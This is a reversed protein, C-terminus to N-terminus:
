PTSGVSRRIITPMGTASTATASMAHRTGACRAALRSGASIRLSLAYVSRGSFPEEARRHQRRVFPEIRQAVQRREDIHKAERLLPVRKGHGCKGSGAALLDM